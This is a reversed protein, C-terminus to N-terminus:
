NYQRCKILVSNSSTEWMSEQICRRLNWSLISKMSVWEFCTIAPEITPRQHVASGKRPWKKGIKESNNIIWLEYIIIHLFETNQKIMNIKNRLLKMSRPNTTSFRDQHKHGIEPVSRFFTSAISLVYNTIM